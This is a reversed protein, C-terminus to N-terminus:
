VSQCKLIESIRENEYKLRVNETVLVNNENHLNANLDRLDSLDAVAKKRLINCTKLENELNVAM